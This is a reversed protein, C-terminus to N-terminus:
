TPADGAAASDDGRETLSVVLARLDETNFPKTLYASAGNALATARDVDRARASVILFPTSVYRPDAKARALVELGSVGPMMMDLVVVDPPPGSQLRALAGAGDPFHEVEFGEAELTFQVLMAIHQEDEALVVKKAAM